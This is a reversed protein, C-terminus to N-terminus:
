LIVKDYILRRRYKLAQAAATTKFVEQAGAGVPRGLRPRLVVTCVYM